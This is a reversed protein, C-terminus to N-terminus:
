GTHAYLCNGLFKLIPVPLRRLLPRASDLMSGTDNERIVGEAMRVYVLDEEMSGWGRKFMLLGENTSDTRGFDFETYGNRCAWDIADWMVRHNARHELFREDSSSYKYLMSHKFTLFVSAAIAKGNLQAVSVFGNGRAIMNAHLYMFFKDPQPPVGLKKRTRANLRIFETLAAGDTRHEVTVHERAAKEVNRQHMKKLNRFLRNSDGDLALTHRKYHSAPRLPGSAVLSRIELYKWRKEELLGSCHTTFAELVEATDFLPGCNDSFPLCVARRGTLWSQVELLPLVGLIGHSNLAALCHPRYNYSQAITAIWQPHHFVGAHEHRTIYEMWRPDSVPDIDIIKPM